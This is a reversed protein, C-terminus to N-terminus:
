AFDNEGNKSHPNLMTSAAVVVTFTDWLFYEQMSYYEVTIDDRITLPNFSCISERDPSTAIYSKSSPCIKEKRGDDLVGGDGGVGVSVDDRDMMHHIDYIQNVAHGADSWCNASITVA